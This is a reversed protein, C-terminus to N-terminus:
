LLTASEDNNYDNLEKFEPEYLGASCESWAEWEIFLTQSNLSWKLGSVVVHDSRWQDWRFYERWTKQNVVVIRTKLTSKTQYLVSSVVWDEIRRLWLWEYM